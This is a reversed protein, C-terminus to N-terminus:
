LFNKQKDQKSAVDYQSVDYEAFPFSEAKNKGFCDRGTASRFNSSTDKLQGFRTNHINEEETTNKEYKGPGVENVKDQVQFM